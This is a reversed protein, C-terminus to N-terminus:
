LYVSEKFAGGNAGAKLFTVNPASKIPSEDLGPVDSARGLLCPEEMEGGPKPAGIAIPPPSTPTVEPDDQFMLLKRFIRSKALDAM